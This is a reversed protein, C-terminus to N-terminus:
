LFHNASSTQLVCHSNNQNTRRCYGDDHPSAITSSSSKEGDGVMDDGFIEDGFFQTQNHVVAEKSCFGISSPITIDSSPPLPFEETDDSLIPEDYTNEEVIDVNENNGGSKSKGRRTFSWFREDQKGM